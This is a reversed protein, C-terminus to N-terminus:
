FQILNVFRPMSALRTSSPCPFCITRSLTNMQRSLKIAMESAARLADEVTGVNEIMAGSYSVRLKDSFSEDGSTYDVGAGLGVKINLKKISAKLNGTVDRKEESECECEQVFSLTATGGETVSAM